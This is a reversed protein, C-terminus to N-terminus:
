AAHSWCKRQTTSIRWGSHSMPMPSKMPLHERAARQYYGTYDYSTFANEQGGIAALQQSFRGAPNTATGKFMLHELFHAIGSKGLTEDGSGVCYWIMHTVVPTRHDPVVVVSLGNSLTFQAINQSAAALRGASATLVACLGLLLAFRILHRPM